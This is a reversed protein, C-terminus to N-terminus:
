RRKVNKTGVGLEDNSRPPASFIPITKAIVAQGVGFSNSLQRIHKTEEEPERKGEREFLFDQLYIQFFDQQSGHLFDQQHLHNPFFESLRLLFSFLLFQFHQNLVLRM